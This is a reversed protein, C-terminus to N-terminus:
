VGVTLMVGVDVFVGVGEIEIPEVGDLVGALETVGVCVGVGEREVPAVADIVGVSENVDEGDAECLWDPLVVALGVGGTLRAARLAAAADADKVISSVM